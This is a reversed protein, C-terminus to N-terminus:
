KQDTNLPISLLILCLIVNKQFILKDEELYDVILILPLCRVKSLM